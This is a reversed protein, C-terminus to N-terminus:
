SCSQAEQEGALRLLCRGRREHSVRLRVQGHHPVQARSHDLQLHQDACGHVQLPSRWRELLVLLGTTRILRAAGCHRRGETHCLSDVLQGERPCPRAIGGEAQCMAALAGHRPLTRRTEGSSAVPRQGGLAVGTLQLTGHSRHSLIM